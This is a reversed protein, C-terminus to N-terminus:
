YSIKLGSFEMEGQVLVSQALKHAELKMAHLKCAVLLLLITTLRQQGDVVFIESKSKEFIFNGLFLNEGAGEQYNKLDEILDLAEDKGWKYDRQYVPISFKSPSNLIDEIRTLVPSFM